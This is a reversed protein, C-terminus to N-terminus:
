VVMLLVNQRFISYLLQSSTSNQEVGLIASRRGPAPDSRGPAQNEKGGSKFPSVMRLNRVSFNLRTFALDPIDALVSSFSKVGLAPDRMHGPYPDM